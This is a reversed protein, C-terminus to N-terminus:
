FFCIESDWRVTLSARNLLIGEHFAYDPNREIDSKRKFFKIEHELLEELDCRFVPYDPLCCSVFCQIM